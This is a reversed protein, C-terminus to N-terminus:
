RWCNGTASKLNEGYKNMVSEYLDMGGEMRLDIENLKNNNFSYFVAAEFKKDYNFFDGITPHKGYDFLEHALGHEKIKIFPRRKQVEQYSMGMELGSLKKPLFEGINKECGVVGVSILGTAVYPMIKKIIESLM